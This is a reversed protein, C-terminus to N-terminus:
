MQLVETVFYQLQQHQHLLGDDRALHYVAPSSPSNTPQQSPDDLDSDITLSDDMAIPGSTNKPFFVRSPPREGHPSSGDVNADSKPSLANVPNNSPALVNSANYQRYPTSGAAAASPQITEFNNISTPPAYRKAYAAQEGLASSSYKNERKRSTRSGMGDENGRLKPRARERKM